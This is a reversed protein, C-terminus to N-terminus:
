EGEAVGKLFLRFSLDPPTVNLDPLIGHPQGTQWTRLWRFGARDLYGDALGRYVESLITDIMQEGIVQQPAAEPNNYTYVLENYVEQIILVARLQIPLFRQLINQIQTKKRIVFQVDDSDPTLYVGVTDRAYWNMEGKQTDYTYHQADNINRRLSIKAPNGMDVVTSGSYRADITKALPYLSSTYVQSENSRFWLRVTQSNAQLSAPARQTFQGFTIQEDSGQSGPTITKSWVNWGDTRNSSFFLDINDAGLLIAAPEKNEYDPPIPTLESETWDADTQTDFNLNTTTRYFINWLGNSKRRSWFVWIRAAVPDFVAAPERDADLETTLIKAAGWNTGDFRNYWIKWRGTRRSSWFLWVNGASDEFAAPETDDVAPTAPPLTAGFGLVPAATSADVEVAIFSTEGATPSTLKIKGSDVQAIGPLARNIADAVQAASSQTTFDITKERAQDVRIVLKTGTLSFPESRSGLLQAKTADIGTVTGLALGLKSAVSSAPLEIKSTVGTTQSTLIIAGDEAATVAAGPIERNLLAVVEAATAQAINHFHEGRFVIVRPIGDDVRIEFQDGDVFTFPASITGQVRAPRAPRGASLLNLKIQPIRKGNIDEYASWFLWFNGDSKQLAAPYKNLDGSFTLRRAPLWEAQDYIKYWLHWQDVAGASAGSNRPLPVNHRAHYFLWQRGDQALLAAPRGEYAVDLTVLKAAPQWVTGRREKEWITLQEPDNARFVNHVFEKIQADWSVLRNITARLNAAIGTTRYYHPAYKVENRQKALGITFDTQWGIWQALLPLLAGDIRDLDSFSRGAGAFSRLLDLQLGFMEMLRQLQGKDKDAPDLGPVENPPKITDHRHYLAPLNQYLHAATEYAATAMASVFAPFFNPTADYAVVAYYYVTESRLGKDSFQGVQGAPAPADYIIIASTINEIDDKDPFTFERRLIKAHFGSVNPNTWSLDIQGGRPNPEAKLNGVQV